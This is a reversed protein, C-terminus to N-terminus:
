AKKILPSCYGYFCVWGVDNGHVYSAVDYEIRNEVLRCM